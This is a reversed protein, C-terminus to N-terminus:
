IFLLYSKWKGRSFPCAVQLPLHFLGKYSFPKKVQGKCVPFDIRETIFNGLSKGQVSEINLFHGTDNNSQM